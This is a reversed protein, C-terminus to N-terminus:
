PVVPSLKPGAPVGPEDFASFLATPFRPLVLVPMVADDFEETWGPPLHYRARLPPCQQGHQPILQLRSQTRLLGTSAGSRINTSSIWKEFLSVERAVGSLFSNNRRRNIHRLRLKAIVCWGAHLRLRKPHTRRVLRSEVYAKSLPPTVAVHLPVALCAGPKVNSAV